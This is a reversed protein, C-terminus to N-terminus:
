RLLLRSYEHQFCDTSGRYQVSEVIEGEKMVLITDAMYLAVDMDHTIMLYTCKLEEHLEDLLQLIQMRVIVDLGSFAEDFIVIEPNVSIARAISVRKQQGGSLEKPRRRCYDQPLDMREMLEYVRNKEEARSVRLLNRLPEAILEYVTMQPNLSSAADQFVIQLKRYIDQRKNARFINQGDLEVSGSTPTIIGALMRVLTTKGSGSEGVLACRAQGPLELTTPKVATFRSKKGEGKIRYEKTLQNAKLM